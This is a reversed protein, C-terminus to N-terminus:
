LIGLRGNDRNRPCPPQNRALTRHRCRADQKAERGIGPEDSKQLRCSDILRWPSSSLSGACTMFDAQAGNLRAGRGVFSSMVSGTSRLVGVESEEPSLPRQDWAPWDDEVDLLLDPRRRHFILTDLLFRQEYIVVDIGRSRCIANAISEFFFFLGNLM